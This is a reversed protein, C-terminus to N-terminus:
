GIAGVLVGAWWDNWKPREIKFAQDFGPKEGYNQQAYGNQPPPPGSPPAYNQAYQPPQQPYGAPEQMQYYNNNQAPAPAGQYYSAAQGQQAM